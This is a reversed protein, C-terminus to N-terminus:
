QSEAFQLFLAGDAVVQEGAGLGRTVEYREGVRGGLIVTRRDFGGDRRAVFVFPVNQEDRLVSSVPVLLGTRPRSAHIAVNVYMDRKLVDRPNRAVVRVSTARTTPDVLAGVYDVRGPFSDPLAATTVDVQEGNQVASVDSEFVNAMVWVTSLDAITFCQTSGASLLEGPNILKEVVVGDIPARIIGEAPPVPKGDRIANTTISDVGLSTMQEIAAERDAYASGSDARAQDLDSRAIADAKFLAEDLTAIRAANKLATQAKQYAAVAQAFDASAVKALPTGRLVHTGTNVLIRSVPGSIASIVATSRDGNFAVTGTTQITPRFVSPTITELHIRQRQEESLIFGAPRNSTDAAASPTAAAARGVPHPPTYDGSCGLTAVTAIVAAAALAPLERHVHPVLASADSKWRRRRSGTM